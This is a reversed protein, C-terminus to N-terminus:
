YDWPTGIPHGIHWQECVPCRYAEGPRSGKTKIYRLAAKAQKKTRYPRKGECTGPTIPHQTKAM